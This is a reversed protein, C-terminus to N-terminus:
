TPYSLFLILTEVFKSFMIIFIQLSQTIERISTLQTGELWRIVINAYFIASVGVMKLLMLPNEFPLSDCSTVPYPHMYFNLLSLVPIRRGYQPIFFVDHFRKELIFSLVKLLCYGPDYNNKSLRRIRYTINEAGNRYSLYSSKKLAFLRKAWLLWTQVM